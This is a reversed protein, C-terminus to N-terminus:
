HESGCACGAPYDHHHLVEPLHVHPRVNAASLAGAMRGDLGRWDRPKEHRLAGEGVNAVIGPYKQTLTSRFRVCGLAHTFLTAEGDPRPPGRYPFVCWPQPCYTLTQVVEEHVEVDHEILIFSDGAWLSLLLRWYAEPDTGMKVFQVDRGELSKRTLPHVEPEYACVIRM